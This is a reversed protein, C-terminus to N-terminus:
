SRFNISSETRGTGTDDANLIQFLCKFVEDNFDYKCSISIKNHTEGITVLESSLTTSVLKGDQDMFKGSNKLLIELAKNDIESQTPAAMVNLSFLTLLAIVLYKMIFGKKAIDM